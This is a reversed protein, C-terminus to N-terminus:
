AAADDLDRFVEPHVDRLAGLVQNSWSSRVGHTAFDILPQWKPKGKDDLVTANDKIWPRSPPAAWARSGAIHIGIEAVILGSSFQVKCFGRLTNKELPRWDLLRAHTRV